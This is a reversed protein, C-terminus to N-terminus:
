QAEQRVHKGAERGGQRGAERDRSKIRPDLAWVQYVFLNLPSSYGTVLLAMMWQQGIFQSQSELYYLSSNLTQKEIQLPRWTGLGSAAQHGGVGEHAGGVGGRVEGAVEEGGVPGPGSGVLPQPQHLAQGTFLGAFIDTVDVVGDHDAVLM